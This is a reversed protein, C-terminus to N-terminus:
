QYSILSGHEIDEYGKVKSLYNVLYFKLIRCPKRNTGVTSLHTHCFGLSRYFSPKRLKHYITYLTLKELNACM